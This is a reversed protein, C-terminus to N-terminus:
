NLTPADEKREPAAAKAAKARIAADACLGAMLAAALWAEKTLGLEDAQKVVRAIIPAPIEVLVVPGFGEITYSEWPRWPGAM